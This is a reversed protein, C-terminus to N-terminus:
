RRLESSHEAPQKGKLRKGNRWQKISDNSRCTTQRTAYTRQARILGVAVALTLLSNYNGERMRRTNKRQEEDRSRRGARQTEGIWSFFRFRACRLHIAGFLLSSLIAHQMPGFLACEGHIFEWRKRFSVGSRLACLRAAPRLLLVVDFRLFPFTYLTGCM